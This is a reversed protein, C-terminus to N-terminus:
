ISDSPRKRGDKWVKKAEMKAKKVLEIMEATPEEFGEQGKLLSHELFALDAWPYDLSLLYTVAETDNARAANLLVYIDPLAGRKVFEKVLDLNGNKILETVWASVPYIGKKILIDLVSIDKMMIAQKLLHNWLLLRSKIKENEMLKSVLFSRNKPDAKMVHFIAFSGDAAPDHYTLPNLNESMLPNGHNSIATALSLSDKFSLHMM